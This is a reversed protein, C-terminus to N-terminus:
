WQSVHTTSGEQCDLIWIHASIDGGDVYGSGSLIHNRLHPWCSQNANNNNGQGRGNWDEPSNMNWLTGLSSRAQGRRIQGIGGTSVILAPLCEMACSLNSSIWADNGRQEGGQLGGGAWLLGM